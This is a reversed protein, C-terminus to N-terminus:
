RMGIKKAPNGAWISYEELIDKTVVSGVGIVVGRAIKSCKALITSEFIWVDDGIIKDTVVISSAGRLLLPTKGKIYHTHTFIKVGSGIMVYKGLYIDGTVDILCGSSILINTNEVSTGTCYIKGAKVERHPFYAVKKIVSFLDEKKLTLSM